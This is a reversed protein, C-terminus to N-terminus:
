LVASDVVPAVAGSRSGGAQRLLIIVACTGYRWAPFFTESCRPEALAAGPAGCRDRGQCSAGAENPCSDTDAECGGAAEYRDAVQRHGAAQGIM